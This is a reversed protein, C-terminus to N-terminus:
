GQTNDDEDELVMSLYNQIVESSLTSKTNSLFKGLMFGMVFSTLAHRTPELSTDVMDPASILSYLSFIDEKKEEPMGKLTEEVKSFIDSCKVEQSGKSIKLTRRTMNILDFISQSPLEGVRQTTEM